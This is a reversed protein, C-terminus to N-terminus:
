RPDTLLDDGPKAKPKRKPAKALEESLVTRAAQLTAIRADISALAKELGSLKKAM